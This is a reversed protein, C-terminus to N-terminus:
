FAGISSSERTASRSTTSLWLLSLQSPKPKKLVKRVSPIDARLANQPATPSIADTAASSFLMKDWNLTQERDDEFQMVWPPNQNAAIQRLKNINTEAEFQCADDQASVVNRGQGWGVQAGDLILTATHVYVGDIQERADGFTLVWGVAAAIRELCRSNHLTHTCTHLYHPNTQKTSSPRRPSVM